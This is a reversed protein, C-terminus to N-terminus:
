EGKTQITVRRNLPDYPNATDYPERQGKGEWSVRQPDIGHRTVLYAVVSEARQESLKQNYNPTGTADTHGEIRFRLAKVQGAKIVAALQDLDKRAAPTLNASNYHFQIAVPGKPGASPRTPVDGIVLGRTGVAIQDGSQTPGACGPVAVGLSDGMKCKDAEGSRFYTEKGAQGLAVGPLLSAALVGVLPWRRRVVTM